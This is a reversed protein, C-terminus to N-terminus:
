LQRADAKWAHLSWHAEAFVITLPAYASSYIVGVILFTNWWAIVHSRHSMVRHSTGEVRRENRNMWTALADCVTRLLGGLRRGQQRRLNEEHLRSALAMMAAPDDCELTSSMVLRAPGGELLRSHRPARRRADLVAATRWDSILM